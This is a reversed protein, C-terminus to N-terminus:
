KWQRKKLTTSSIGSIYVGQRTMVVSKADEDCLRTVQMQQMCTQMWAVERVALWDFIAIVEEEPIVKNNGLYMYMACKVGRLLCLFGVSDGHSKNIRAFSQDRWIPEKPLANSNQWYM